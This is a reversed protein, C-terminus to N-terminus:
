HTDPASPLTLRFHAGIQQDALLSLTGGAQEVERRALHLHLGLGRQGVMRTNSARFFPEFLAFREDDPVGIGSDVVDIAVRGTENHWSVTVASSEESFKAANDLLIRLTESLVAQDAIVSARPSRRVEYTYDPYTTKVLSVADDVAAEVSVPRPVVARPAQNLRAVQELMDALRAAERDITTYARRATNEDRVGRLLLQAYGRISTLPTRLEHLAARPM